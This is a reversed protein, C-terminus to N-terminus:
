VGCKRRAAFVGGLAIGLLAITAGGDPVSATQTIALGYPRVASQGIAGLNTAAGTSLNISHFSAVGAPSTLLAYGLNGGAGDSLIDFGTRDNTNFGLSGVTGLVGNNPVSTSVLTDTGNDIYYLTTGTGPNTDSNTYAADIISPGVGANPDGAAYALAGDVTAAGTDVNIRLNQDLVNVLRLRDAVPNFDIGLNGSSSNTSSTSVLTTFATNPNITVIQGGTTNDFGYLLGDAPRFDIGALNSVAGSVTGVVTTLGPNAIDFSVLTNGNGGITYALIAANGSAATLLLAAATALYNTPTTKM